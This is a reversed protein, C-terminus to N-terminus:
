SGPLHWGKVDPYKAEVLLVSARLQPAVNALQKTIQRSQTLFAQASHVVFILRDAAIQYGLWTSLERSAARVNPDPSTRPSALGDRIRTFQSAGAAAFSRYRSMDAATLTGAKQKATLPAVLATERAFEANIQQLANALSSASAPDTPSSAQGNGISDHIRYVGLTDLALRTGTHSHCPASTQRIYPLIDNIGYTWSTQTGGSALPCQTRYVYGGNILLVAAVFAIGGALKALSGM